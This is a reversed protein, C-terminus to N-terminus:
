ARGIGATLEALRRQAEDRPLPKDEAQGNSPSVVLPVRRAVEPQQEAGDQWRKARLWSAPYPIFQGADKTWELSRTQVDIAALITAVLAQDPKVSKWAKEADAKAKKKPYAQWFQDFGAGSASSKDERIPNPESLIPDSLIPSRSLRVSDSVSKVVPKRHFKWYNTIFYGVTLGDKLLPTLWRKTALYVLLNQAREPHTRDLNQGHIRAIYSPTGLINGENWEGASLLSMWMFVARDGFRDRMEVTEPDSLFAQSVPYYRSRSM